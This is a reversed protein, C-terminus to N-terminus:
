RSEASWLRASPKSLSTSTPPEAGCGAALLGHAWRSARHTLGPHESRLPKWQELQAINVELWIARTPLNRTAATRLVKSHWSFVGQHVGAVRGRACLM